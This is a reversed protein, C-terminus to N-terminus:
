TMHFLEHVAHECQRFPGSPWADSVRGGLRPVELARADLGAEEAEAQTVRDAREESHPGSQREVEERRVHDVVDGPQEGDVLAGAPARDLEAGARALPQLGLVDAVHVAAVRVRDEVEVAAREEGAAEVGVAVEDRADRVRGALRHEVDAVPLHRELRDGLRDGVADDREAPQEVLAVPGLVDRDGAVRGAAVEGEADGAGHDVGPQPRGAPTTAM